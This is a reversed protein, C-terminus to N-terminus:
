TQVQFDIAQSLFDRSSVFSHPAQGSRDVEPKNRVELRGLAIGLHRPRGTAACLQSLLTYM